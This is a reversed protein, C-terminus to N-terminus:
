VPKISNLWTTKCMLLRPRTMKKLITTISRGDAEEQEVVTAISETSDNEEGTSGILSKGM